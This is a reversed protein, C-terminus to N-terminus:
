KLKYVISSSKPLWDYDNEDDDITGFSIKLQSGSKLKLNKYSIKIEMFHKNIIYDYDAAPYMKWQYKSLFKNIIGNKLFLDAGMINNSEYGTADSFDNDLYIVLNKSGLHGYGLILIYFFSGDSTLRVEKLSLDPNSAGKGQASTPVNQWDDIKGDLSISKFIPGSSTNHSTKNALIKERNRSVLNQEFNYRIKEADKYNKLSNKVEFSEIPKYKLISMGGRIQVVKCSFLTLLFILLFLFLLLYKKKIFL